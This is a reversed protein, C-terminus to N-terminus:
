IKVYISEFIELESDIVYKERSTKVKNPNFSESNNFDKKDIKKFNLNCSITSTMYEFLDEVDTKILGLPM